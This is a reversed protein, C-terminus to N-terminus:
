PVEKQAGSAIGSSRREAQGGANLEMFHIRIGSDWAHCYIHVWISFSVIAM